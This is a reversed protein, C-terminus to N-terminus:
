PMVDFTRSDSHPGAGEEGGSPDDETVTLTYTGPALDPLTFSWPMMRCCEEATTFDSAVVADDQRIEWHVTGEFAAALGEITQGPRLAHGEAPTNIWVHALVKDDDENSLAEATSIGLIENHHQGDVLFQVPARGAQLAAQATRMLQEITLWAVDASVAEADARRVVDGPLDITIQDGDFSVGLHGVDSPTLLPARYDPDEPRLMAAEVATVAKEDPSVDRYQFERYLRPGHPTDGIFYVAVQTLGPPPNVSSTASKTPTPIPSGAKSDSPPAIPDATTPSGGSTLVAFAIITAATALMAGGAAWLWRPRAQKATRAQINHLAETPEIDDVAESLTRRIWDDTM